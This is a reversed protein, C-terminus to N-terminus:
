KVAKIFTFIRERLKKKADKFVLSAGKVFFPRAAMKKTGDELFKPYPANRKSKAHNYILLNNSNIVNKKNSRRLKGSQSMPPDGAKSRMGAVKNQITKKISLVAENGIERLAVHKAITLQRNTIIKYKNILKNYDVKVKLQLNM